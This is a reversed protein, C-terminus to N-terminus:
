QIWTINTTRTFAEEPVDLTVEQAEMAVVGMTEFLMILGNWFAYTTEYTFEGASQSLTYVSCTRGAIIRDPQRRYGAALWAAEDGTDPSGDPDYIDGTDQDDYPLKVWTEDGISEYEEYEPFTELMWPRFWADSSGLWYTKDINNVIVSYM